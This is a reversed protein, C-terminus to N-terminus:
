SGGSFVHKVDTHQVFTPYLHPYFCVYVYMWMYQWFLFLMSVLNCLAKRSNLLLGESSVYNLSIIGKLSMGVDVCLM